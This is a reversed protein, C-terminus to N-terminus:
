LTKNYNQYVLLNTIKSIAHICYLRKKDLMVQVTVVLGLNFVTLGRQGGDGKTIKKSYCSVSILLWFKNDTELRWYQSEADLM